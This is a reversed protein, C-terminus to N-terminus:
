PAVTRAMADKKHGGIMLAVGTRLEAVTIATILLDLDHCRNLWEMVAPIPAPKSLQSVVNTDLVIM